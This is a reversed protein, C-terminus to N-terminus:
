WGKARLQGTYGRRGPPFHARSFTPSLSLPLPTLKSHRTWLHRSHLELHSLLVALKPTGRPPDGGRSLGRSCPEALSNGEGSRLKGM